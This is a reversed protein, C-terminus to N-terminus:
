KRESHCIKKNSLLRLFTERLPVDLVGDGVTYEYNVNEM